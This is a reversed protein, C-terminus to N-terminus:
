GTRTNLRRTQAGMLTISRRRSLLRGLVFAGFRNFRGPVVSPVRGLAALAERVVAAPAM